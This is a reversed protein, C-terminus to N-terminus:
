PNLRKQILKLGRGYPGTIHLFDGIEHSALSPVSATCNDDIMGAVAVLLDSLFGRGDAKAAIALDIVSDRNITASPSDPM